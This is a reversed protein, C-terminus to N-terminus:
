IIIMMRNKVIARRPVMHKKWKLILMIIATKLIKELITSEVYRTAGM